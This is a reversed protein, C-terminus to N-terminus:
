NVVLLSNFGFIVTAKGGISLCGVSDVGEHNSFSTFATKNALRHFLAIM